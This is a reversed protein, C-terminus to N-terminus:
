PGDKQRNWLMNLPLAMNENGAAQKQDFNPVTEQRHRLYCELRADEAVGAGQFLSFSFM